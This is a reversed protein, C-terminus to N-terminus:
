KVILSAFKKAERSNKRIGMLFRLYILQQFGM